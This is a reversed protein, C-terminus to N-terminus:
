RQRQQQEQERRSSCFYLANRSKTLRPRARRSTEGVQRQRRRAVRSEGDLVGLPRALRACLVVVIGVLDDHAGEPRAAERSASRASQAAVGRAVLLLEGDDQELPAHARARGVRVVLLQVDRGRELGVDPRRELRRQGGEARRERADRLRGDVARWLEPLQQGLKLAPEGLVVQVGAGLALVLVPQPDRVAHTAGRRAEALRVEPSVGRAEGEGARPGAPSQADSGAASRGSVDRALQRSAGVDAGRCTVLCSYM